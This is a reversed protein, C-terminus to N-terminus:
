MDLELMIGAGGRGVAGAANVAGTGNQSKWLSYPSM